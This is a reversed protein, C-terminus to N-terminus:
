CVDIRDVLLLFFHALFKLCSIFKFFINYVVCLEYTVRLWLKWRVNEEYFYVVFSLPWIKEMKKSENKEREGKSIKYKSLPNRIVHWQNFFYFFVVKWTCITKDRELMFIFDWKEEKRENKIIQNIKWWWWFFLYLIFSSSFKISSILWSKM